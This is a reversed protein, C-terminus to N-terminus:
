IQGCVNYVYRFGVQGITFHTCTYSIIYIDFYTYICKYMSYKVMCMTCMDSASRGLHSIHIM